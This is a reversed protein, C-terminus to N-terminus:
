ACILTILAQNDSGGKQVAIEALRRNQESIGLDLSKATRLARFTEAFDDEALRPYIGDTALFILDGKEMQLEFIEPELDPAHGLGMLPFAWKPNWSGQFQGRAANYSRAKTIAQVRGRRVLFGQCSGCSAVVMKNGTAFALLASAGGRGNIHRKRNEDVLIQNAYLFANFVLNGADTLYSRFVYPLTVESDGLGNKMFFAAKELVQRAAADGVGNGGYGDAIGFCLREADIFCADENLPRAPGKDVFSGYARITVKESM